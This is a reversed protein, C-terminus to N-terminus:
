FLTDTRAKSASPRRSVLRKSFCCKARASDTMAGTMADDASSLLWGTTSAVGRNMASPPRHVGEGVRARAISSAAKPCRRYARRYFQTVAPTRTDDLSSMSNLMVFNM